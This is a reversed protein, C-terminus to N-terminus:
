SGYDRLPLYRCSDPTEPSEDRLRLLMTLLRQVGPPIPVCAGADAACPTGIVIKPSSDRSVQWRANTFSTFDGVVAEDRFAALVEPDKLASALDSGDVGDSGCPPLDIRCVRQPEPATWSNDAVSVFRGGQELSYSYKPFFVSPPTLNRYSYDQDLECAYGTRPVYPETRASADLAADLRDHAAEGDVHADGPTDVHADSSADIPDVSADDDCAALALLVACLLRDRM